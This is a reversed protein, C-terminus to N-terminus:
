ESTTFKWVQGRKVDNNKLVEDVRWYFTTGPKLTKPFRFEPADLQGIFERSTKKARSVRSADIGVYLQHAKAGIGAVWKLSTHIPVNEADAAPQPNASYASVQYDIVLLSSPKGDIMPGSGYSLLEDPKEQMYASIM